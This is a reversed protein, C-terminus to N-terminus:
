WRFDKHIGARDLYEQRAQEKEEETPATKYRTYCDRRVREDLDEQMGKIIMNRREPTQDGYHFFMIIDNYLSRNIQVKEGKKSM